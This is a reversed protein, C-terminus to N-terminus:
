LVMLRLKVSSGAGGMGKDSAWFHGYSREEEGFRRKARMQLCSVHQCFPKAQSFSFFISPSILPFFLAEFPSRPLSSVQPQRSSHWIASAVADFSAGRFPM